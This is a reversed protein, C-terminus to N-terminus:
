MGPGTPVSGLPRDRKTGEVEEVMYSFLEAFARVDEWNTYEYDRETDLVQGREATIRQMLKKKLFGFRTFPLAGAFSAVVDPMWLTEKMLEEVYGRQTEQAGEGEESATLSVSFFGTVRVELAAHHAAIFRRMKKPYSGAHIPAGLLIGGFRELSGANKAEKVDMVEVAYGMSRLHSGLTEAVKRTQGESTSFIIGVSSKEHEM